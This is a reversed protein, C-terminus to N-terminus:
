TLQDTLEVEISYKFTQTGFSHRGDIVHIFILLLNFFWNLGYKAIQNCYGVILLLTYRIFYKIITYIKFLPKSIMLAESRRVPEKIKIRM